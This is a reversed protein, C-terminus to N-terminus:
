RKMSISGAAGGLSILERGRGPGQDMASSGVEFPLTGRGAKERLAKLTVVAEAIQEPSLKSALRGDGSRAVTYETAANSFLELHFKRRLMKSYKYARTNYRFYAVITSTILSLSTM